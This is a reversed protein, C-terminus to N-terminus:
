GIKKKVPIQHWLLYSRVYLVTNRYQKYIISEKVEFSQTVFHQTSTELSNKEGRPRISIM